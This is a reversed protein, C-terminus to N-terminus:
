EEDDDNDEEEGNGEELAKERAIRREEAIRKMEEKEEKTFEIDDLSKLTSLTIYVEQRYNDIGCIPSNALSLKKLTAVATLCEIQSCEEIGSYELQLNELLELSTM